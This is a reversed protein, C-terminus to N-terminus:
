TLQTAESRILLKEEQRWPFTVRPPKRQWIPGSCNPDGDEDTEGLSKKLIPKRRGLQAVVAYVKKGDDSVGCYAGYDRYWNAVSHYSDFEPLNLQSIHGSSRDVLMWGGRQWQWRAPSILATPLSDNLRFARQVVFLRDTVEHPLGVTFEKLHTDVYIARM